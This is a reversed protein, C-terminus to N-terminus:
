GCDTDSRCRGNAIQGSFSWLSEAAPEAAHGNVCRNYNSIKWTAGWWWRWSSSCSGMASTGMGTSITCRSPSDWNKRRTAKAASHQSVRSSSKSISTAAEMRTLSQSWEPWSTKNLLLTTRVSHSFMLYLLFFRCQNTSGSFEWIRLRVTYRPSQYLGSPPRPIWWTRYHGVQGIVGLLMQWGNRDVVPVSRSPRAGQRAELVTETIPRGWRSWSFLPLTLGPRAFNPALTILYNTCNSGQIISDFLKSNADTNRRRADYLAAQNADAVIATPCPWPNCLSIPSLSPLLFLPLFFSSHSSSALKLTSETAEIIIQHRSPLGSYDDPVVACPKFALVALWTLPSILPLRLSAPSTGLAWPVIM